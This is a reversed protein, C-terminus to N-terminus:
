HLWDPARPRRPPANTIVEAQREFQAWNKSGNPRSCAALVPALDLGAASLLRAGRRFRAYTRDSRDAMAEREPSAGAKRGRRNVTAPDGHRRLRMTHKACLGKAVAAASCDPFTCVQSM